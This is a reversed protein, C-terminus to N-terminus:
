RLREALIEVNARASMEAVLAKLAARRAEDRLRIEIEPRAEEFTMQRRPHHGTVELLHFGFRTAVPESIRGPELKFAAEALAPEMRERSFWSLSGHTAKKAPDDSLADILQPFPIGDKLRQRADKLRDATALTEQPDGNPPFIAAFHRAEVVEPLTFAAPTEEYRTRMQAETPQFTERSSLWKETALARRLRRRLSGETLGAERLSTQFDAEDAFQHRLTKLSAEPDVSIGDIKEVEQAVVEAAIMKQLAARCEEETPSEGALHAASLLEESLIPRGNVTAVVRPLGSEGVAAPDPRRWCLGIVAAALLANLLLLSSLLIPRKM